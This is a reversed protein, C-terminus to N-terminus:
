VALSAQRIQKSFLEWLVPDANAIEENKELVRDRSIQHEQWSSPSSNLNQLVPPVRDMAKAYVSEATERSEFEEWLSLFEKDLPAPLMGFLRKAAKLEEAAIAERGAEDYVFVDGADIEVIDHILLMKLVKLSDLGDPMFLLAALTVQWSHEASNEYRSEGVPRTKRLISKLKEMELLFDLKKEVCHIPSERM